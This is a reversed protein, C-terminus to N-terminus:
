WKKVDEVLNEFFKLVDFNPSIKATEEYRTVFEDATEGVLKWGYSEAEKLLIVCKEHITM